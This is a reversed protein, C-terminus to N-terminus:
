QAAPTLLLPKSHEVHGAPRQGRGLRDEDGIETRIAQALGLLRRVVDPHAASVETDEHLDRRVDFLEPKAPGGARSIPLYLKWEGARIAELRGQRYYGFGQADWPSKADPEGFLLPRIDHGDIPLTPLPAGALAAFTPLLDITSCLADQIKGAPIKGPWRMVCPMRMAGESVDYGWGRYPANSGQPPNRKVAGNDSSFMVLTNDDLHLRKLAAMIAGTSWDLEEVSDGYDGNKSRGRFAASSFPNATSGPTIQPLYVLFPRDRNREIFAIAEETCRQVLTNRDAPAEIVREGRLVPLPPFEPHQPSPAMDDSYPIGFYYDFGRRLPLFEPQDGLHWKGFAATAYGASRLAQALTTEAPSLGKSEAPRFVSEKAGSEDMGVRRPYCGTLLAARSPTCVGSAVYFSTFRTGEAALRDIEPTRHLKSGTCGLDGNGLNDVFIVVFNPKPAAEARASLAGVALGALVLLLRFASARGPRRSAFHFLRACQGPSFLSM